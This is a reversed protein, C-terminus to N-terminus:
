QNPEPYADQLPFGRLGAPQTVPWGWRDSTINVVGMRNPHKVYLQLARQRMSELLVAQLYVAANQSM